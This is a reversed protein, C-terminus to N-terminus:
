KTKPAGKMMAGDKMMPGGKMMSDDAKMPMPHAEVMAKCKADRSLEAATKKRCAELAMKDAESMAMAGGSMMKPDATAKGPATMKDGPTMAGQTQALAGGALSAALVLASMLPIVSKMPEEM